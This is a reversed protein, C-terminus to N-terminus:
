QMKRECYNQQVYNQWDTLGRDGLWNAIWQPSQFEENSILSLQEMEENSSLGLFSLSMPDLDLQFLRNGKPSTLYYDRKASAHGLIQIQKENLGFDRYHGIAEKEAQLSSNPLYIKTFCQSKLIGSIGSQTIQIPDQFILGVTVNFKRLTTLWDNVRKKFIPHTLIQAAEELLLMTPRRDSFLATLRNFFAEMVPIFDKDDMKLLQTIDLGLIDDNSLDRGKGLLINKAVGNTFNFFAERIAQEQFTLLELNIGAGSKYHNYLSEKIQRSRNATIEVNQLSCINEVWQTLVSLELDFQESDEDLSILNELPSFKDGGMADFYNGGLMKVITKHSNDKDFVIVRSDQYRLFQAMALQLLTSKGGGTPGIVLFHPVDQCYFNFNMVRSGKTRVKMLAPADDPYLKADVHLDGAWISSTPFAHAAYVSDCIPKRVNYSGHGPISGLYSDTANITEERVKYNKSEIVESITKVNDNLRNLDEDMLVIVSTMFGYRVDGSINDKAAQRVQMVKENADEDISPAFNFSMKILGWLGGIAKNSWRNQIRKLYKAASEKSLAIWRNSWRYSCGVYNLIDLIAPYSYEPLDDIVITKIYKKGIVPVLGPYFHNRSLLCDLFFASKPYQYNKTDGTITQNLFNLLSDNSLRILNGRMNAAQHKPIDHNAVVTIKEFHTIFQRCVHEFIQYEEDITQERTEDDMLAKVLKKGTKSTPVYSLTLYCLSKFFAKDQQFNFRRSDDIIAALPSNFHNNEPYDKVEQSILNTEVMWGDDLLNLAALVSWANADLMDGTASDIDQAVYFYTASFAGDKHFVTSDNYLCAYSLLEAFEQSNKNAKIREATTDM